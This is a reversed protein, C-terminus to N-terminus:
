RRSPQDVDDLFRLMDTLATSRRHHARV